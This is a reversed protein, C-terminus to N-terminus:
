KIIILEENKQSPYHHYFELSISSDNQIIVLTDGSKACSIEEPLDLHKLPQEKLLSLVYALTFIGSCFTIIIGLILTPSVESDTSWGIILIGIVFSLLGITLIM